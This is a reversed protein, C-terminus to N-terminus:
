DGYIIHRAITEAAYWVLLNKFQVDGGVNKAGNFSAIYEMVNIGADEAGEYALDWIDNKYFDYLAVIESYYIMGSIGGQAGHEALNNLEDVEYNDQMYTYFNSQTKM